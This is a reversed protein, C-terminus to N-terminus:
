LLQQEVVDILGRLPRPFDYGAAPEVDELSRTGDGSRRWVRRGADGDHRGHLARRELRRHHDADIGGRRISVAGDLLNGEKGVAREDARVRRTGETNRP